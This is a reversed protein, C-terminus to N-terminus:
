RRRGPNSPPQVATPPGVKFSGSLPKVVVKKADPHKKRLKDGLAHPDGIDREVHTVGDISVMVVGENSQPRVTERQPPKGIGSEGTENAM